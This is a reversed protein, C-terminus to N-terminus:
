DQEQHRREAPGPRELVGLTLLAVTDLAEPNRGPLVPLGRPSGQEDSGLGELLAYVTRQGTSIAVLIDLLQRVTRPLETHHVTNGAMLADRAVLPYGSVPGDPQPRFRRTQYGKGAVIHQGGM